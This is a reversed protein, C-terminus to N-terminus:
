AADQAHDTFLNPQEARSAAKLEADVQRELDKSRSLVDASRNKFYERQTERMKRVLARFEADSM